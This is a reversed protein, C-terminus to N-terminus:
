TKHGAVDDFADPKTSGHDDAGNDEGEAKDGLCQGRADDEDAQGSGDQTLNSLNSMIKDLQSMTFFFVSWWRPSPNLVTSQSRILM